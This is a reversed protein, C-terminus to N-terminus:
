KNKAEFKFSIKESKKSHYNYINEIMEVFQITEACHSLFSQHVKCKQLFKALSFKENKMCFALARIFRNHFARSYFKELEVLVGILKMGEEVESNTLKFSGDKFARVTKGESKAVTSFVGISSSISVDYHNYLTDITQYGKGKGSALHSALYDKLEWTKQSNNIQAINVDTYCIVYAVQVDLAKCAEFRHQGDQIELKGDIPIVHIPYAVLYGNKAISETIRALHSDSITRNSKSKTFRSYDKTWKIETKM